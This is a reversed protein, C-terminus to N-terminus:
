DTHCAPAPSDDPESDSAPDVQPAATRGLDSVDDARAQWTGRDWQPLPAPRYSFPETPTTIERAPAPEPPVGPTAQMHPLALSGALLLGVYVAVSYRVWSAM